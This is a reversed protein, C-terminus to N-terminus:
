EPLPARRRLEDFWNLIVHLIVRRVVLGMGGEGLSGTIEYPGIRTGPVM